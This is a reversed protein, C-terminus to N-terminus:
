YCYRTDGDYKEGPIKDEYIFEPGSEKGYVFTKEIWIYDM